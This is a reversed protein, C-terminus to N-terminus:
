HLTMHLLVNLSKKNQTMTHDATPRRRNGLKKRADPRYLTTLIDDTSTSQQTGAVGKSSLSFVAHRVRQRQPESLVKWDAISLRYKQHSPRLIFNGCGCHRPRGRESGQWLANPIIGFTSQCLRYVFRYEGSLSTM